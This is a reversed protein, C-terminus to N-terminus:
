GQLSPPLCLSASCPVLATPIPCLAFLGSPVQPHLLFPCPSVECSAASACLLLCPGVPGSLSQSSWFLSRYLWSPISASRCTPIAPVQLSLHPSASGHPSLCPSAPVRPSRCPCTSVPVALYPGAPCPPSRCPCALVPVPSPWAPGPARGGDGPWGQGEEGPTLPLPTGRLGKRPGRTGGFRGAGEQQLALSM